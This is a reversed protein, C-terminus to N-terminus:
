SPNATEMVWMPGTPVILPADETKNVSVGGMEMVLVSSYCEETYDYSPDRVVKDMMIGYRSGGLDDDYIM